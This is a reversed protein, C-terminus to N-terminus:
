SSTCLGDQVVIYFVPSLDNNGNHCPKSYAVILHTHNTGRSHLIEEASDLMLRSKERGKYCYSNYATGGSFKASDNLVVYDGFSAGPNQLISTCGDPSALTFEDAPFEWDHSRGTVSKIHDGFTYAEVVGNGFLYGQSRYYTNLWQNETTNQLAWPSVKTDDQGSFLAMQNPVSNRGVVHPSFRFLDHSDSTSEGFQQDMLFAFLKPYYKM